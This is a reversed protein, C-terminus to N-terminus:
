LVMENSLFLIVVWVIAFYIKFCVWSLDVKKITLFLVLPIFATISLLMKDISFCLYGLLGCLALLTIITLKNSFVFLTIIKNKRDSSIDRSIQFIHSIATVCSIILFIPLALNPKSILIFLGGMAGVSLVDLFPIRKLFLSYGINLVLFLVVYLFSNRAVFFCFVIVSIKQLLVLYHALKANDKLNRSYAQKKGPDNLDNPIDIIDNYAYVLMLCILCICFQLLLTTLSINNSYFEKLLLALVVFLLGGEARQLRYKLSYYPALFSWKM